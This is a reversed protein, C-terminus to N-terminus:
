DATSRSKRTATRSKTRAIGAERVAADHGKHEQNRIIDPPSCFTWQMSCGCLAKIQVEKLLTIRPPRRSTSRELM